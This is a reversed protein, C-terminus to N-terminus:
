QLAAADLANRFGLRWRTRAPDATYPNLMAIREESASLADDMMMLQARKWGEAEVRSM